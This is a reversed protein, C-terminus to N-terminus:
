YSKDKYPTNMVGRENLKKVWRDLRIRWFSKFWDTRGFWKVITPSIAYYTRIFARGYWTGDLTNDRFRRLTWVEPCDYSGYVCTAVYCGGSSVYPSQSPIVYEPDIERIKAAYENITNNIVNWNGFNISGKMKYNAWRWCSAASEIYKDGFVNKISDGLHYLIHTSSFLNLVCEQRYNERIQDDINIYHNKAATYLMTSINLSKDTIEKIIEEQENESYNQKVLELVPDINNEVGQAATSIEAIKCGMAKYYVVYFNAEWSSPDKILIMDYYKAANENNDSDKARRAIEYLNKLEDSTDVKVTGQVDVTGEVMMKKAEEVSYKTGCSQCVFVGDQKLLNTSGCMECTLAKM